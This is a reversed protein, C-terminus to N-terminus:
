PKEDDRQAVSTAGASEGGDRHPVIPPLIEVVESLPRRDPDLITAKRGYLVEPQTLHLAQCILADPQVRFFGRAVTGHEIRCDKLIRGLPVREELILKRARPPFLELSVRNAGFEVPLESHDLHLAVERFYYGGRAESNLIKLHIAARHFAELTPTMDNNHVLLTRYPEPVMAGTLSEIAPLPLGARSYLDDLPYVFPSVQTTPSM